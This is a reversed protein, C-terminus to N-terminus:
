IQVFVSFSIGEVRQLAPRIPGTHRDDELVDGQVGHRCCLPCDRLTIVFAVACAARLDVLGGCVFAIVADRGIM